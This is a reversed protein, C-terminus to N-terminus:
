TLKRLIENALAQDAEDDSLYLDSAVLEGLERWVQNRNDSGDLQSAGVRLDLYFWAALRRELASKEQEQSIEQVEYFLAQPVNDRERDKHNFADAESILQEFLLPLREETAGLAEAAVQRVRHGRSGKIRGRLEILQQAIYPGIDDDNVSNYVIPNLLIRMREIQKAPPRIDAGSTMSKLWDESCIQVVSWPSVALRVGLEFFTSPSSGTWDAVCGACRRIREYLSQSVLQPTAMDQLREVDTLIDERWLADKLKGRLSRWIPFYEQDYSCLVLIQDELPISSWANEQSGLQRLADYVPLDLYHPHRTLQDFGTCIRDIFRGIRPDDGAFVDQPPTHSSLSLDSLNFPRDIPHGELWGGGHSNITVGRRTAARVGLLLMVGPEFGTIDFLALDAQVALQVARDLSVPSAYADGIDFSALKINTKSYETSLQRQKGCLLEHGQWAETFSHWLAKADPSSLVERILATLSAEPEGNALLESNVILCHLRAPDFDKWAEALAAQIAPTLDSFSRPPPESSTPLGPWRSTAANTPIALAHDEGERFRLVGIVTETEADVAPAGSMGREVGVDLVLMSVPQGRWNVTTHGSVRAPDMPFGDPYTRPPHNQGFGLSRINHHIVKGPTSLALWRRDPKSRVRILALDLEEDRDTDIVEETTATGVPKLKVPQGSAASLVHDCTLAVDSGVFFATGRTVDNGDIVAAIAREWDHELM